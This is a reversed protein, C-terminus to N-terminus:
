KGFLGEARAKATARQFDSYSATFYQSGDPAALVFYIWDGPTPNLAAQLSALGPSSIPGPPLGTHLRTNYPSPTALQSNTINLIRQQLAYEVTTDLGLSMGKALRNYIVRAIKPRDGPVKAEEEVMSAVALVQYPTYGLAKAQANLNLSDAEQDFKTVMQAILKQPNGVDTLLVQYTAPFLFGELDTSGAPQYKSHVTALAHDLDAPKMEPFTTLIKARIESLWLGEPIVLTRTAPPLPARDLRKVVDSMSEPAHLGDYTGAKFPGAATLKVYWRFVSANAVVGHAALVSAIQSDSSGDPIAVTVAKGPADPPNVQRATWWGALALVLLAVAVITGVVPAARRWVSREPPLYVIPPGDSSDGTLADSQGDAPVGDDPQLTETM